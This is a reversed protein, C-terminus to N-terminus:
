GAGCCCRRRARSRVRAGARPSPATTCRRTEDPKPYVTSSPMRPGTTARRPCRGSRSRRPLRGSLGAEFKALFKASVNLFVGAGRQACLCQMKFAGRLKTVTRLAVKLAADDLGDLASSKLALDVFDKVRGADNLRGAAVVGCRIAEPSADRMAGVAGLCEANKRARLLAPALADYLADDVTVASRKVRAMAHGVLAGLAATPADTKSITSLIVAYPAAAEVLAPNAEHAADVARLGDLATLNALRAAFADATADGLEATAAELASPPADAVAAAALPRAVSSRAPAFATSAVGALALTALRLLHTMTTM